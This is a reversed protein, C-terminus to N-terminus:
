FVEEGKLKYYKNIGMVLNIYDNENIIGSHLGKICNVVQTKVGLTESHTSLKFFLDTIKKINQPKTTVENVLMKVIGLINKDVDPNNELASYKEILKEM